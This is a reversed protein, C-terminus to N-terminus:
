VIDALITDRNLAGETRVYAATTLASTTNFSQYNMANTVCLFSVATSPAPLLIPRVTNARTKATHGTAHPSEPATFIAFRHGALGCVGKTCSGRPAGDGVMSGQGCNFKVSRNCNRFDCL